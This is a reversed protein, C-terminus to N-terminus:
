YKCLTQKMLNLHHKLVSSITKEINRQYHLWGYILGIPFKEMSNKSHTKYFQQPSSNKSGFIESFILGKSGLSLAVASAWGLIWLFSKNLNLFSSWPSFAWTTRSVNVPGVFGPPNKSLYHKKGHIIFRCFFLFILVVKM